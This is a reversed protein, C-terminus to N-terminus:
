IYQYKLTIDFFVIAPSVSNNDFYLIINGSNIILDSTVEDGLNFNNKDVIDTTGILVCDPTTVDVEFAGFIKICGFGNGGSNRIRINVDLSLVKNLTDFDNPLSQLVNYNYLTAGPVFVFETITKIM